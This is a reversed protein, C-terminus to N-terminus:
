KIKHKKPQKGTRVHNRSVNQVCESHLYLNVVVVQKHHKGKVSVAVDSGEDDDDDDDDDCIDDDNGDDDILGEDYEDDVHYPEGTGGAGGVAGGAVTEMTLIDDLVSLDDESVSM